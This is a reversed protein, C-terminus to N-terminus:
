KTKPFYKYYYPDEYGKDYVFTLGKDKVLEEVETFSKKGFNRLRLLDSKKFSVLEGLTFVDAMKLCNLTRVSIGFETLKTELLLKAEILEDVNKSLPSIELKSNTPFEQLLKLLELLKVNLQEIQSILHLDKKNM